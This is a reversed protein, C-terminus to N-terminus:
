QVTELALRTLDLDSQVEEVELTDKLHALAADLCQIARECERHNGDQARAALRHMVVGILDSEACGDLSDTAFKIQAFKGVKGDKPQGEADAPSVYYTHPVQSIDGAATVVTAYKM